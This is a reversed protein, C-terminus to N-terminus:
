QGTGKFLAKQLGLSWQGKPFNHKVAFADLARKTLPGFNQDISGKYYGLNQLRVQIIRVDEPFIPNLFAKGAGLSGEVPQAAPAPAAKVPAPAARIPAPAPAPAPAAKIPAPAPAPAPAAKIPAPAPAPAPAAEVPANLERKINHFEGVVVSPLHSTPDQKYSIGVYFKSSRSGPRFKGGAILIRWGSDNIYVPKAIKNGAMYPKDTVAMTLISEQFLRDKCFTMIFYKKNAGTKEEGPGYTMPEANELAFLYYDAYSKLGSAAKKFLDEAVFFTEVRPFDPPIGVVVSKTITIDNQTVIYQAAFYVGARRNIIDTFLIIGELTAQAVGKQLLTTEYGTIALNKVGFGDYDFGTEGVAHKGAPDFFVHEVAVTGGRLREILAASVLKIDDPTQAKKLPIVPPAAVVVPAPPEAVTKMDTVKCATALALICLLSLITYTHKRM